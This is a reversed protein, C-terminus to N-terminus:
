KTGRSNLWKLREKIVHVIILPWLIVSSVIGAIIAATPFRLLPKTDPAHLGFLVVAMGASLYILSISGANM